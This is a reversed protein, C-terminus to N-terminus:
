RGVGSRDLVRSLAVLLGLALFAGPPLALIGLRPWWAPLIALGLLSGQGLLERVVALSALGLTFGSGQGIGDALSVLLGQRSACAEARCLLICNVIILPVYPGLRESMSPMGAALLRDAVTVFTAITTTFVLIRVHPRIARRLASIALNSAVLVFTTAAGMTLAGALTGTVALTPCMGLMQRYTPNEPLIGRVLWRAGDSM